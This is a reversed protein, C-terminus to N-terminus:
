RMAELAKLFREPNQYGIVRAGPIERGASDFFVIGPPGFLRFRKLLPGNAPLAIATRRRRARYAMRMSLQQALLEDFKVRRWEASRREILDAAPADPSPHHLSRVSEAIGALAHRRRMTEPLTDDLVAEDLAQLVLRRLAYQSLGATTPYVPTLAQPLPEGPLVIRYRPHVMEVGFFGPRVEGYARVLQGEDAARQFQKLQSGYFNLFRLVLGEAHIVLQRKPRYKVEANLVRAEVQAPEGPRAQEPATLRTEDEYRHPLHLALDDASRLGLKALKNAVALSPERKL